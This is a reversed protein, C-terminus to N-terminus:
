RLTASAAAEAVLATALQATLAQARQAAVIATREALQETSPHVIVAPLDVIRAVLHRAALEARLAGEPRVTVTALDVIHAAPTPVASLEARLAPDPRVTVAPLDIIREARPVEAAHASTLTALSLILAATLTKTNM